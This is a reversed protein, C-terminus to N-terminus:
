ADKGTHSYEGLAISIHFQASDKCHARSLYRREQRVTRAIRKRANPTLTRSYGNIVTRPLHTYYNLIM